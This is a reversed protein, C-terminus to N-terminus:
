IKILFDLIHRLKALEDELAPQSCFLKPWNPLEADAQLSRRNPKYNATVLGCPRRPRRKKVMNQKNTLCGSCDLVAM